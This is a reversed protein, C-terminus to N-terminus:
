EADAWPDVVVLRAWSIQEPVIVKEDMGAGWGLPPLMAFVTEETGHIAPDIVIALCDEFGGNARYSGTIRWISLPEASHWPPSAESNPTQTTRM